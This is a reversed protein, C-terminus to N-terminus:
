FWQILDVGLTRQYNKTGGYNSAGELNDYPTVGNAFAKEFRLEPRIWTLPTFHHTLGLTLSGYSTKYGTRWGQPDNMYDTRFSVFDSPGVKRELYDVLGVATSRGPIFAGPGGGAAYQLPGNSISGGEPANRTWLYYVEFANHFTTSFTHFWTMNFQQLNDHGYLCTGAPIGTQIQGDPLAYQITKQYAACQAASQKAAGAVYYTFGKNNYADVGALIDDKNAKTTYKIFAQGTPFRQTPTFPAIDDGFTVGYDITFMNSLKSWVLLGTQTYSDWDFMISHTYLYNQPAL